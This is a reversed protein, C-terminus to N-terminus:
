FTTRLGTGVQYKKDAYNRIELVFIQNENTIAINVIAVGGTRTDNV